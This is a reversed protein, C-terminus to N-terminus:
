CNEFLSSIFADEGNATWASGKINEKNLPFECDDRRMECDWYAFSSGPPLTQLEPPDKEGYNPTFDTEEKKQRGEERPLLTFFPM